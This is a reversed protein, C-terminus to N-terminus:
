LVEEKIKPFLKIAEQVATVAATSSITAGSVADIRGGQTSLKVQDLGKLKAFQRTFAPETIRAGLGPTESHTMVSVGTLTGDPAFGIMLSVPGHYGSATADYAFAVIKGDKKAPFVDKLIPQGKEDTGLKVQIKDTIPDNDYGEPLVVKLSPGKVFKLLQYERPAKTAENVYSLVLGSTGCIATLVVVM